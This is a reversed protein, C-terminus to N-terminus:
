FSACLGFLEEIIFTHSFSFSNGCSDEISKEFFASRNMLYNAAYGSCKVRM